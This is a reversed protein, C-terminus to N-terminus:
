TVLADLAALIEGISPRDDPRRSRYIWALRGRADVLVDGGLEFVDQRPRELRRGRALLRAYDLLHRPALLARIGARGFGYARYASWDPDSLLTAKLGLADRFRRLEPPSAPGIAVLQVGAKEGLAEQV